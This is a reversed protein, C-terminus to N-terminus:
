SHDDPFNEAKDEIVKDSLTNLKVSENFIKLIATPSKKQLEKLDDDAFLRNDNEDVCTLLVLKLIMESPQLGEQGKEFDIRDIASMGKVKVSGGWEPVDVEISKIDPAAFIQEKTLLM